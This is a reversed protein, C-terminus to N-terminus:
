FLRLAHQGSATLGATDKSQSGLNMSWRGAEDYGMPCASWHVCGEYSIEVCFKCFQAEYSELEVKWVHFCAPSHRVPFLDQFFAVTRDDVLCLIAVVLWISHEYPSLRHPSPDCGLDSGVAYVHVSQEEESIRE